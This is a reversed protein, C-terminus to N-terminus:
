PPLPGRPLPVDGIKAGVQIGVGSGSGSVGVSAGVGVGGGLLLGDRLGVRKGVWLGVLAFGVRKGVWAGVALGVVDEGVGIPSVVLFFAKRVDVMVTEMVARKSSLFTKVPEPTVSTLCVKNFQRFLGAGPTTPIFRCPTLTLLM